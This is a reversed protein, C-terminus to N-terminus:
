PLCICKSIIITTERIKIHEIIKEMYTQGSELILAWINYNRIVTHFNINSLKVLEYLFITKHIKHIFATTLIVYKYM